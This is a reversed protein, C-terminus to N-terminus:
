IKLLQEEAQLKLTNDELAIAAELVIPMQNTDGEHVLTTATERLKGSLEEETVPSLGQRTREDNVRVIHAMVHTVFAIDGISNMLREAEKFNDAYLYHLALNSRINDRDSEDVEDIMQEAKEASDIYVGNVGISGLKILKRASFLPDFGNEYGYLAAPNESVDYPKYTDYESFRNIYLDINADRAPDQGYVRRDKFAPPM